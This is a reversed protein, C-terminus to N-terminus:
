AIWGHELALDHAEKVVDGLTPWGDVGVHQAPDAENGDADYQHRHHADLHNPHVHVNDYRFLNITRTGVRRLVHYRYGTTEVMPQGGRETVRQWKTVEITIGAACHLEGQWTVLTRTQVASLRDEVIFHDYDALCRQHVAQYNDWSNPGHRNSM